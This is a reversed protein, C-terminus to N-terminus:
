DPGHRLRYRLRHWWALPPARAAAFDREARAIARKRQAFRALLERHPLFGQARDFDTLSSLSDTNVNAATQLGLELALSPRAYGAAIGTQIDANALTGEALMRRVADVWLAGHPHNTSVWPQTRIETFHLLRTREPDFLDLDNWGRPIAERLQGPALVPDLTMLANYDYDRGLGAVIREVDWDLGACDLLMVAAHRNRAHATQAPDSRSGIEIAVQADDLPADWLETIDRFVLMDSDLYIARGHRGALAPIAFRAFSFETYPAHRPDAVTPADGNDIARIEIDRSTNRRISDALVRFALQQSRDAGCFIRIPASDTPASPKEMADLM